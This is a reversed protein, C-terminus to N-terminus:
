SFNLRSHVGIFAFAFLAHPVAATESLRLGVKAVPLAATDPVQKAANVSGEGYVELYPADSRARGNGCAFVGARM